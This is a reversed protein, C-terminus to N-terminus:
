MERWGVRRQRALLGCRGRRQYILKGLREHEQGVGVKIWKIALPVILNHALEQGMRLQLIRLRGAQAPLRSGICSM